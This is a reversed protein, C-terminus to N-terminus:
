GTPWLIVRPRDHPSVGRLPRKDAYGRSGAAMHGPSRSAVRGAPPTQRRLRPKWGGDPRAITRQCAGPQPPGGHSSRRSAEAAHNNQHHSQGNQADGAGLWREGPRHRARACGTCTVVGGAVGVLVAVHIDEVNLQGRAVPVLRPCPDAVVVVVVQALIPCAGVRQRNDAGKARGPVRRQNQVVVVGATVAQRDCLGASRAYGDIVAAPGANEDARRACAAAVAVADTDAGGAADARARDVRGAVPHLDAM